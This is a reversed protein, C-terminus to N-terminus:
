IVIRCYTETPPEFMPSDKAALKKRNLKTAANCFNIKTRCMAPM